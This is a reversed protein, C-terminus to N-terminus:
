EKVDTVTDQTKNALATPNLTGCSTLLIAMLSIIAVVLYKIGKM